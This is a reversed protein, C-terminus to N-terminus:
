VFFFAGTSGGNFTVEIAFSKSTPLAIQIETNSVKTVIGGVVTGNAANKALNLNTYGNGPNYTIKISQWNARPFNLTVGTETRTFTSDNGISGTTQYTVVPYPQSSGEPTIQYPDLDSGTGVLMYGVVNEIEEADQYEEFDARLYNDADLTITAGAADWKKVFQTVQELSRITAQYRTEEVQNILIPAAIASVIALVALTVLLEILTLGRDLDNKNRWFVM